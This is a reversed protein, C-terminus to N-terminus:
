RGAILQHLYSKVIEQLNELHGTFSYDADIKVLKIHFKRKRTLSDALLQSKTIDCRADKTSQIFLGAVPCPSLFAFEEELVHTNIMIFHTLEPRRMLLQMGLLAGFGYGIVILNSFTRYQNCIMSLCSSTDILHEQISSISTRYNIQLVGLGVEHIASFLTNIVNVEEENQSLSPLLIAMAEDNIPEAFITNIKGSPGHIFMQNM